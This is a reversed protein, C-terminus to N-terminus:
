YSNIMQKMGINQTGFGIFPHRQVYHVCFASSLSTFRIVRNKHSLIEVQFELGVVSILRSM